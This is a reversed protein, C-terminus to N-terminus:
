PVKLLYFEPSGIAPNLINTSLNGNSDFDGACNTQWQSVPLALNTGQLLTWSGGASGNTASIFLSSGSWRVGTIAPPPPVGNGVVIQGSGTAFTSGAQQTWAAPFNAPWLRNLTAFPYTGSALAVGAITVSAFHDNRHLFVRGNTGLMLGGNPNNLDYLTEVAAV